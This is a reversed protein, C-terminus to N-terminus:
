ISASRRPRCRPLAVPLELHGRYAKRIAASARASEPGLAVMMRDLARVFRADHGGAQAAAPRAAALLALALVV